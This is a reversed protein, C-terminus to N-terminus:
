KTKGQTENFTIGIARSYRIAGAVLILLAFPKGFEPAQENMFALVIVLLSIAIWKGVLSNELGSVTGKKTTAVKTNLRWDLFSGVYLVMGTAYVLGDQKAM